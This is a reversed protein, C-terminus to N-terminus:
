RFPERSFTMEFIGGHWSVRPGTNDTNKSKKSTSPETRYFCDQKGTCAKAAHTDGDLEFVTVFDKCDNCKEKQKHAKSFKHVDWQSVSKKKDPADIMLWDNTKNRTITKDATSKIYDYTKRIFCAPKMCKAKDNDIDFLKKQVESNMSCKACKQTEFKARSLLPKEDDICRKLDAVTRIRWGRKIDDFYEKIASKDDKIRLFQELHGFTLVKEDWAKLLYAPLKLVGIRRRIYGPHIGTKGALDVLAADGKKDLYAKFSEAEELESLDKRQLNEITMIEFADDDSLERVIAPIQAGALGGNREAAVVSARHRRHGAVLEYLTNAKECPKKRVIIPQIVGQAAISAVLEDFDKGDYNKRPNLPNYRIQGLDLMHFQSDSYDM